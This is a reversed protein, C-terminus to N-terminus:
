VLTVKRIRRGREKRIMPKGIILNGEEKGLPQGRQWPAIQGEHAQGDCWSFPRTKRGKEGPNGEEEPCSRLNVAQRGQSKEKEVRTFNDRLKWKLVNKFEKILSILSRM